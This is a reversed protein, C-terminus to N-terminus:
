QGHTDKITTIALYGAGILGADGELASIEMSVQRIALPQAWKRSEDAIRNLFRSAPGFVGGGLIVKEPNFISVLNAIAMGWYVIAKDMVAVAVPDQKEFAGFVDRATIQEVPVDNLVSVVERTRGLIEGVSRVLGNGSAYYEFNGCGDYKNHYPNEMAMWGIAGAIGRNGKIISGNALIGAGIGTGVAIFLANACGKANGKWVEGLIYCSRDGEIAIEISPDNIHDKLEDWLPYQEWGPINPAWVTKKSPDYIGPVCAGVAVVNSSIGKSFNVLLLVLEGATEFVQRGERGDITRVEKKLIDGHLNFLAASIKTGGIDIGVILNTDSMTCIYLLRILYAIYILFCAYFVCNLIFKKRLYLIADYIRVTKHDGFTVNLIIM